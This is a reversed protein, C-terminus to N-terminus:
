TNPPHFTVGSDETVSATDVSYALADTGDANELGITASTGTSLPGRLSQYRFTFTGDRHLIASISLGQQADTLFRVNRWEIVFTDSTATTWVSAHEDVYLDDWFPYLANDPQAADPIARNAYATQPADFGLLGNSGVWIQTHAVGYLPVPFPLTVAVATDDGTLNLPQDGTRYQEIAPGCTYGFHDSIHGLPIDLTANTTLNVQQGAPTFCNGAPTVTLRYTGQPVTVGYHGATDTTASVPTGAVAVVARPIPTGASHVTGSLVVTPRATLALDLHVSAGAAVQVDTDFPYDFFGTAHLRYSGVPLWGFRYRGDSGTVVTRQVPGTAQVSVGSMPTGGSTVTGALNGSPTRAALVAGYTDLRGQGFVNNDDPTGGCSTDDTDIATADLVDRTTAVDHRLAPAASWLLAVTAATHPSAMSTGSYEAYGNGPVSSRVDMGPAAVNPKLTGDQGGGRGSFSAIANNVDFAGSSYSDTYEGPSTATACDPGSNGNAFAPFIGAAVWSSVVSSYWPDFGPAGGWSNNVVDPALDPRPNRGNLDTPAVIWQGAALLSAMSCFTSECGKATIWEAGPAVGIRNTGDSGIMTGMTHTGHGVNDCPAPQACSHSPDYWSYNHDYGGDSQRGRYAAALAPHDYQVGTDISAVVIGDGRVGLENWVRPAGVRDVNWEVGDVTAQPSGTVTAPLTVPTDPLVSSVESRAAIVDLLAADGTVRVTNAIWYGTFPAGHASLLGRLGAQSNGANAQEARYVEAAKAKGTARRAATLDPRQRLMVWFTARHGHAVGARVAAAVKGRDAEAYAYVPQAAAAISGALAAVLGTACWKRRMRLFSLESTM